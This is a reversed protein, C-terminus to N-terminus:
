PARDNPGRKREPPLGNRGSIADALEAFRQDLRQRSIKANIKSSLDRCMELFCDVGPEENLEHASFQGLGKERLFTVEDLLKQLSELDDAGSSADLSVQQRGIERLKRIFPDLKHEKKKLRRQSLWRVGFFVAILVSVAFSRMGETSEVFDTFLLPKLQPEYFCQAGPHIPFEPNKRAFDPGGAFLEALDNQKLFEESLVIRTVAEVLGDSVDKRTLLQAPLSVSDVRNSPLVFPRAGYLGQPIECESMSLHNAALAESQPITLIDCKGKKALPEFIRARVGVSIFAADLDGKHLKEVVDDLQLKDVEQPIPLKDLGFHQRLVYSMADKGFHVKDIRDELDAPVEINANRRVIFHAPQSYLNAVFAINSTGPPYTLGYAKATRRVVEEDHECLVELTSPQYLAFDVDGAQLLLLNELSGKTKLSEVDKVELKVKIEEVLNKSLPYYLGGKQGTAIRIKKPLATRQRYIWGIAIPSLILALILLLKFWGKRTRPLYRTLARPFSAVAKLGTKPM